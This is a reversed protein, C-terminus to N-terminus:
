VKGGTLISDHPDVFGVEEVLLDHIRDARQNTATTIDQNRCQISIAPPSREAHNITKHGQCIRRDGLHGDTRLAVRDCVMCLPCRRNQATVHHTPRFTKLRATGTAPM